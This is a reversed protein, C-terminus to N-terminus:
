RTIARRIRAMSLRLRSKVTGVPVGLEDAILRHPKDAFFSLEVVATQEPSLQQLADRLRAKEEEAILAIDACPEQEPLFATDDITTRRERRIADIRLNRVITFIWTEASAKGPDFLGSKRWLTLMAEQTLEEATSRTAGGRMLYTGIRPAFHRFLEEFAARDHTRAISLILRDFSQTKREQMAVSATRRIGGNVTVDRRPLPVTRSERTCLRIVGGMCSHIMQDHGLTVAQLDTGAIGGDKGRM